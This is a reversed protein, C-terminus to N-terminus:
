LRAKEIRRSNLFWYQHYDGVLATFKVPRNGDAVIKKELYNKIIWPDEIHNADLNMTREITATTTGLASALDNVSLGSLEFNQKLENKTDITQQHTLSM